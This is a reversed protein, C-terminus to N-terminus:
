TTSQSAVPTSTEATRGYILMLQRPTDLRSGHPLKESFIVDNNLAIVNGPVMELPQNPIHTAPDKTALHGEGLLPVIFRYDATGDTHHHTSYPHRKHRRVRTLSVRGMSVPFSEDLEDIISKLPLPIAGEGNKVFEIDRRDLEDNTAVSFLNAVYYPFLAQGIRNMRRPDFVDHSVVAQGPGAVNLELGQVPKSRLLM